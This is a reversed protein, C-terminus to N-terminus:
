PSTSAGTTASSAPGLTSTTVSTPITTTIVSTGSPVSTTTSTSNLLNQFARTEKDFSPKAKHLTVVDAVMLGVVVVLALALVVLRRARGPM